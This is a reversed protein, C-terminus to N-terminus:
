MIHVGKTFSRRRGLNRRLREVQSASLEDAIREQEGQRARTHSAAQQPQHLPAPCALRLRGRRVLTWGPERDCASAGVTGILRHSGVLVDSRVVVEVLEPEVLAVGGCIRVCELRARPCHTDPPLHAHSPPSVQVEPLRRLGVNIHDAYIVRRVLPRQQDAGGRTLQGCVLDATRIGVAPRDLGVEGDGLPRPRHLHRPRPTLCRHRSADAQGQKRARQGHSRPVHLGSRRRSPQCIVQAEVGCM